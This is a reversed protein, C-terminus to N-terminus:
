NNMIISNEFVIGNCSKTMIMPQMQHNNRIHEDTIELKAIFQEYTIYNMTKIVGKETYIMTNVNDTFVVTPHM